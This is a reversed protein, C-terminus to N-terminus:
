LGHKAKIAQWKVTKGHSADKREKVELATLVHELDGVLGEYEEIPLLVAELKNNRSLVVRGTRKAENLVEGLQKAAKSSPVIEDRRYSTDM